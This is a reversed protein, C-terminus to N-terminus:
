ILGWAYFVAGFLGVVGLILALNDGMKKQVQEELKNEKTKNAIRESEL